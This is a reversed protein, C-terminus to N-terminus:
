RVPRTSALARTGMAVILAGVIGLAGLLWGPVSLGGVNPPVSPAPDGVSILVMDVHTPSDRTIVAYRIDNIFALETNETVRAQVAYTFRDDIL